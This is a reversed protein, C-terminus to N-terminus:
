QSQKNNVKVEAGGWDTLNVEVPHGGSRIVILHFDGEECENVAQHETWAPIFAFDGQELEHRGPEEGEDKPPSLIAGKGLVAYIIAESADSLLTGQEGYHRVSSSAKPKVILVSACMKDTKDVVANRSIVQVKSREQGDGNAETVPPLIDAAKTVTISAPIIMPLIDQILPLLSAM